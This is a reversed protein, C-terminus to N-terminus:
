ALMAVRPVRKYKIKNSELGLTYNGDYTRLHGAARAGAQVAARAGAQVTCELLSPLPFSPSERKGTLVLALLRVQRKQKYGVPYFM